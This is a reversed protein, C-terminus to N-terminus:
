GINLHFPIQRTMGVAEPRVEAQWALFRVGAAMAQEVAQAYGPDIRRAVSCLQVDTRPVCFLVAAQEGGAALAALERMHKAGRATVADPFLGIGDEALSCQKVELYVRGTGTHLLFDLRVHRGLAVERRISSIRGFADILGRELGEHM